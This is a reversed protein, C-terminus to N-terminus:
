FRVLDGVVIQYRDTWPDKVLPYAVTLLFVRGISSKLNGLRLGGGVDVYTRSWQARDLRRISGADAYLVFGLQLLGLWNVPTIVREELSALWRRDGVWLHNGYGRL